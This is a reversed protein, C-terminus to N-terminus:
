ASRGAEREDAVLLCPQRTAAQLWLRSTPAPSLYYAPYRRCAIHSASLAIVLSGYTGRRDANDREYRPKGKMRLSLIAMKSLDRLALSLGLRCLLGRMDFLILDVCYRMSASKRRRAVAGERESASRGVMAPAIASSVADVDDHLRASIRPDHSTSSACDCTGDGDGTSVPAVNSIAIGPTGVAAPPLLLPHNSRQIARPPSPSTTTSTLSPGGQRNTQDLVVRVRVAQIVLVL